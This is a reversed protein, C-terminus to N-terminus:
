FKINRKAIDISSYKGEPYKSNAEDIIEATIEDLENWTMPRGNWGVPKEEDYTLYSEGITKFKGDSLKYYGTGNPLISVAIVGTKDDYFIGTGACCDVKGNGYTLICEREQRTYEAEQYVACLEPINDDDIFVFQYNCGIFKEENESLYDRYAAMALRAQSFDNNMYKKAKAFTDFIFEDALVARENNFLKSLQKNYENEDTPLENWQYKILAEGTEMDLLEIPDCVGQGTINLKGESLQYVIDEQINMIGDMQDAPVDQPYNLHLYMESSSEIYMLDGFPLDNSVVQNNYYSLLKMSCEKYSYIKDDDIASDDIAFLEPVNDNDVFMLSFKYDKELDNETIYQQYADLVTDVPVDPQTSKQMQSISYNNESNNGNNKKNATMAVTIGGGAIAVSLIVCIIKGVATSFFGSRSAAKSASKVANATYATKAGDSMHIFESFPPASKPETYAKDNKFLLLFLAVPSISYLKYGKKQMEEAKAKLNKRGYNLRSKVTNESCDLAQAIERISIGEIHFMFICMKQEESLSNLMEYFLEQTEKQSFALEPHGSIDEDEIQYEIFDGTENQETIETFLIPKKKQLANKATNAVIMGLWSPFKEADALSDLNKFAKIYSDQLVDMADDENKMYKLAIYYKDNYTSEYLFTCGRNDNSKALNVAEKYNM